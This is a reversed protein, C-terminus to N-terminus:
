RKSSADGSKGKPTQTGSYSDSADADSSPVAKASTGLPPKTAMAHLLKDFKSTM